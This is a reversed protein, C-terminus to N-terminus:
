LIGRVEALALDNIDPTKIIKNCNNCIRFGIDTTYNSKHECNKELDQIQKNIKM